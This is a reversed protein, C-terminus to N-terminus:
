AVRESRAGLGEDRHDLHAIGLRLEWGAARILRNVLGDLEVVRAIGGNLVADHM